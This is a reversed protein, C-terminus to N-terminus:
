RLRFRPRIESEVEEGKSHLPTSELEMERSQPLIRNPKSELQSFTPAPSQRQKENRLGKEAESIVKKSFGRIGIWNLILMNTQDRISDHPDYPLDGARSVFGYGPVWNRFYQSPMYDGVFLGDASENRLHRNVMNRKEEMSLRVVSNSWGYEDVKRTPLNMSPVMDTLGVRRNTPLSPEILARELVSRDLREVLSTLTRYLTYPEKPNRVDMYTRVGESDLRESMPLGDPNWGFGGLEEPIPGFFDLIARKAGWVLQRSKIGYEKALSVFNSWDPVNWKYPHFIQDKMIVFGAFEAVENSVLCKSESVPCGLNSLTSRYHDHLRKDCIVIDDGLIRFSDWPDCGVNRCLGLLLVNHSLAFTPFSPGAGLPQGRTFRVTSARNEEDIYYYNQKSIFEFCDIYQEVLSSAKGVCYRGKLVDIQYQLPFMNTADSLDVSFCTRGAQLWHQVRRAGLEQDHTCDSPFNAQLDELIMAKLPQLSAQLVANLVAVGRLKCGAEQILGIKGVSNECEPLSQPIWGPNGTFVLGRRSTYAREHEQVYKWPLVDEFVNPFKWRAYRCPKSNLFFLLQGLSDDQRISPGLLSPAVKAPSTCFTVFPKGDPLGVNDNEFTDPLRDGLQEARISKVRPVYHPHSDLGQKSPHELSGFFKKKQKESVSNLKLTSYVMLVNVMMKFDKDSSLARKFLYHLTGAPLGDKRNRAIFPARYDGGSRRSLLEQKLCKFRNVTWEKGSERTWKQFSSILENTQQAPLGLARLRICAQRTSTKKKM